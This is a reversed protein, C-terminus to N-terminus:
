IFSWRNFNITKSQYFDFQYCNLNAVITTPKEYKADIQLHFIVKKDYSIQYIVMLTPQMKNQLGM